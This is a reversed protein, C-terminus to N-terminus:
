RLMREASQPMDSCLRTQDNIKVVPDRSSPYGQLLAIDPQGQDSYFDIRDVDRGSMRYSLCVAFTGRLIPSPIANVARTSGQGIYGLDRTDLHVLRQGLLAWVSIKFREISGLGRNTVGYEAKYERVYPNPQYARVAITVAKEPPYFDELKPLIPVVPAAVGSSSAGTPPPSTVTKSTPEVSKSAATADDQSHHFYEVSGWLAGGIGLVGSILGVWDAIKKLKADM